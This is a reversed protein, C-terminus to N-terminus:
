HAFKVIIPGPRPKRDNGSGNSGGLDSNGSNSDSGLRHTRVIDSLQSALDPVCTQLLDLIKKACSDSNEPETSEPVNFFKLNDRKSFSESKDVKTKM